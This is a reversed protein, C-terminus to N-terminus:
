EDMVTVVPLEANLLLSQTASGFLAKGVATRKRGGIVLYRADRREVEELIEEVPDGVRGQLTVGADDELTGEVVDRAVGRAHREADEVTYQDSSGGTRSESRAGYSASSPFAYNPSGGGTSERFDDFVDQPMVHLLVHPEDFQTALTQGERVTKSPITEGDVATVVVM